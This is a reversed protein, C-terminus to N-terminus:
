QGAEDPSAQRLGALARASGPHQRLEENFAAAALKKQGQKMAAVGLAESVPRPYYPPETYVLALEKKAAQQLTKLGRKGKGSSIEIHGSLELKATTLEEPMSLKTAAKLEDMAASMAAFDQRALDTQGTQAHAIGVAWARWAKQRPKDLVPLSQGDLIMEWKEAQVMARMASFWGQRYATSFSDVQGAERPNEKFGLLERAGEMAKEFQGDMSYVNSLYNVNHGHHGSGYLNDAAMYSRENIAAATFSEQAEKLKGTQGYIHGPMHLAHPINPVLEAYRKCSPWADTAFTAGEFGHIVYHHVGPHEPADRLLERLLNAAEMSGARPTKEPLVFGRMIHLALFLKAEVEGPYKALVARLGKVYAEDAQMQPSLRRGTVSAIYLKELDTAKGDMAALEQAKRAAKVARSEPPPVLRGVVEILNDIQFRPRYDGAAVMAIGWQPMPADPDLAAAQLFSREAERAWFSHLQALGQDFFKQAEPNSTTIAFHLTGQGSLLKAPLAPAVGSPPPVCLDGGAKKSQALMLGISLAAFLIKRMLNM